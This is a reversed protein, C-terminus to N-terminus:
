STPNAGAGFFGAVIGFAKIFDGPALMKASSMPIAALKSICAYTEAPLIHTRGKDDTCFPMGSNILDEGTPERFELTSVDDAGHAKIPRSLTLKIKEM